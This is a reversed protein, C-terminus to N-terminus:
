KAIYREKASRMTDETAEAAKETARAARETAEAAQQMSTILRDVRVLGTGVIVGLWITLMLKAASKM